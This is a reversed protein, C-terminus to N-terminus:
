VGAASSVTLDTPRQQSQKATQSRGSGWEREKLGEYTNAKLPHVGWSSEIDAEPHVHDTLAEVSLTSYPIM